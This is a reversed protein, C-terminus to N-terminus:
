LFLESVKNERVKDRGFVYEVTFLKNATEYNDIINPYKYRDNETKGLECMFYILVSNNGSLVKSITRLISEHCFEM